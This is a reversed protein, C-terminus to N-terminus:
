FMRIRSNRKVVCVKHLFFRDVVGQNEEEEEQALALKKKEPGINKILNANLKEELALMEQRYEDNILHRKTRGYQDEDEEADSDNFEEEDTWADSDDECMIMDSDDEDLDIEAVVAGMGATQYDIMEQRLAAQEPTEDSPIIASFAETELPKPKDLSSDQNFSHNGQTKRYAKKSRQDLNYASELSRKSEKSMSNAIEDALMEPRLLNRLYTM